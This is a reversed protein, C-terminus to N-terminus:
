KNDQFLILSLVGFNGSQIATSSFIHGRIRLLKAGFRGSDGFDYLIFGFDEFNRWFRSFNRSLVCFEDRANALAASQSEHCRGCAAFGDVEDLYFKRLM